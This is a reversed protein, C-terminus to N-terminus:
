SLARLNGYSNFPRDRPKGGMRMLGHVVVCLWRSSLSASLKRERFCIEHLYRGAFHTLIMETTWSDCLQSLGTCMLRQDTVAGKPYILNEPGLGTMRTGLAVVGMWDLGSSNLNILRDNSDIVRHIFDM